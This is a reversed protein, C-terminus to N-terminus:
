GRDSAMACDDIGRGTEINPPAVPTFANTGAEGFNSSSM